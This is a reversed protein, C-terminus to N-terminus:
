ACNLYVTITGIKANSTGSAVSGGTVQFYATGTPPNAPDTTVASNLSISPVISGGTTADFFGGAIGTGAGGAAFLLDVIIYTNSHNAVTIKNSEATWSWGAPTSASYTHTIPNWAGASATTYTFEMAGWTVDVSCVTASSGEQYTGKVDKTDTGGDTTIPSTAFATTSMAAILLIATLIAIIKKM